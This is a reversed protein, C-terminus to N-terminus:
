GSSTEISPNTKGDNQIGELQKLLEREADTIAIPIGININVSLNGRPGGGLPPLGLGDITYVQGQATCEKLDVTTSGDLTEVNVIGGLCAKVFPVTIITHLNAPNNQDRWLQEHRKVSVHIIVDGRPGNNRGINGHGRAIFTRESDIGAPVKMDITYSSKQVGSGNCKECRSHAPIYRGQGSCSTCARVENVQMAGRQYSRHIKGKGGCASCSADTCGPKLKKGRCDVCEDDRYILVLESHETLVSNLSIQHNVVINEGRVPYNGSDWRVGGFIDNM